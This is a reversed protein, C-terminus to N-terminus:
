GKQPAPEVPERRKPAPGKAVQVWEGTEVASAARDEDEVELTWGPGVVGSVGPLSVESLGGVYRLQM